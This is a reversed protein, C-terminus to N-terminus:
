SITITQTTLDIEAASVDIIGDVMEIQSDITFEMGEALDNRDEDIVQVKVDTAYATLSKLGWTRFEWELEWKVEVTADDLLSSDPVGTVHIDKYTLTTNFKEM